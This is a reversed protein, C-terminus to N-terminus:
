TGRRGMRISQKTCATTVICYSVEVIVSRRRREMEFIIRPVTCNSIPYIRYVTCYLFKAESVGGDEENTAKRGAATRMVYRRMCCVDCVDRPAFHHLTAYRPTAHRLTAHHTTDHRTTAHRPTAHRPTAHLLEVHPQSRTCRSAHKM